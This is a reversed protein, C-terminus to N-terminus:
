TNKQLVVNRKEQREMVGAHVALLVTLMMNVASGASVWIFGIGATISSGLASAVDILLMFGVILGSALGLYRDYVNQRPVETLMWKVYLIGLSLVLMAFFISYDNILTVLVHDSNLTPYYSRPLNGLGNGWWGMRKFHRFLYLVSEAKAALAKNNGVNELNLWIQIRDNIHSIKICALGAGAICVMSYACKTVLNKCRIFFIITSTLGLILLLGFENCIVCGGFLVFTYMLLGMLNWSLNSVDGGRYRNQPMKMFYAVVFPYGALVIGFIMIGCFYLYSGNTETGTMRAGILVLPLAAMCILNLFRLSYLKTFRIVSYVVLFILLMLMLDLLFETMAETGMRYAISAGVNSLTLAIMIGCSAKGPRYWVQWALGGLVLTLGIYAAYALLLEIPQEPQSVYTWGGLMLSFILYAGIM